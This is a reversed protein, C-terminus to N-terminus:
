RRKNRAVQPAKHHNPNSAKKKPKDLEGSECSDLCAMGQPKGKLKKTCSQTCAQYEDQKGRGKPCQQVCQNVEDQDAQEMRDCRLKCANPKDLKKAHATGAGLVTLWAACLAAALGSFRRKRCLDM